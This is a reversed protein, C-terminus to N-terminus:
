GLFALVALLNVLMHALMSPYLSKTKKFVYGALIAFIGAALMDVGFTSDYSAHSLGFLIASVVIGSWAAWKNSDFDRNTGSIIASLHAIGKILFGRFFIEENIPTIFTAFLLFWFPAGGLLIQTNTSIVIGSVQSALTLVIELLLIMVFIMVGYALMKVSFKNRSLGLSEIIDQLTNGRIFMYSIAIFSLFFSFLSTLILEPTTLAQTAIQSSSIASAEYAMGLILLLTIAYCAFAAIKDNPTNKKTYKRKSPIAGM